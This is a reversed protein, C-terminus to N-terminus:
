DGIVLLWYGFGIVFSLVYWVMEIAEIM